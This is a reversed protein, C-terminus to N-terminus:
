SESEFHSFNNRLFLCSWDNTTADLIIFLSKTQIWIICTGTQYLMLNNVNLQINDQIYKQHKLASYWMISDSTTYKKFTCAYRPMYM